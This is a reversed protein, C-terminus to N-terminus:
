ILHAYKRADCDNDIAEHIDRMARERLHHKAFYPIAIDYYSLDGGASQPYEENIEQPPEDAEAYRLLALALNEINHYKDVFDRMEDATIINNEWARELADIVIPTTFAYIPAGERHGQDIQTDFGCVVPIGQAMCEIAFLGYSSTAQPFAVRARRTLDLIESRPQKEIVRLPYGNCADEVIGYNKKRRDTSAIVVFDEIEKPNRLPWEDLLLGTDWYPAHRPTLHKLNAPVLWGSLLSDMRKVLEAQHKTQQPPRPCDIGQYYLYWWHISSQSQVDSGWVAMLVTKGADRLIEVDEYWAAAPNISIGLSPLNYFSCMFDLVIVDYDMAFDLAQKAYHEVPVTEPRVITGKYGLYNPFYDLVDARYGQKQLVGCLQTSNGATVIPAFLFSPKTM